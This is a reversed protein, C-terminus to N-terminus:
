IFPGVYYAQLMNIASNSHSHGGASGIFVSYINGGCYPAIVDGGPHQGPNSVYSTVNYAKNIPSLYVWCDSRSNHPAIDAATCPGGSGCSAPAPTPTPIPVPTPTPTPIPRPTPTPTPVPVSTLSPTPTPVPTPQNSQQVPPNSRIATPPTTAISIPTPSESNFAYNDQIAPPVYNYALYFGGVIFLLVIITLSYFIKM